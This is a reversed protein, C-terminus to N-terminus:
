LIKCDITFKFFMYTRTAGIVFSLNNANCM